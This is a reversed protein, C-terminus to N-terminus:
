TASRFRCTRDSCQSRIDIPKINAVGMIAM